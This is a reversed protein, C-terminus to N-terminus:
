QPLQYPENQLIKYIGTMIKQLHPNETNNLIIIAQKQAPIHWLCAKFGLWTGNQSFAKGEDEVNWAICYPKVRKDSLVTPIFFQEIAKSSLITETYLAQTWKWLDETTSYLGADGYVYDVYSEDALRVLDAYYGTARAAPLAQKPEKIFTNRMDLPQWVNEKLYQALSMGSVREVIDALLIYNTSSYAQAKQPLFRPKATLGCAWEVINQKYAHTVPQNKPTFFYTLYDPIGSTQRLLHQIQVKGYATTPYYKGLTDDFRLKNREALQLIATATFGQTLSAIPFVTEPTLANKTQLNAVGHSKQYLVKGASAVLVNGNFAYNKVAYALLVAIKKKQIAEMQQQLSAIAKEKQEIEKKKTPQCAVGLFLIFIFFHKM